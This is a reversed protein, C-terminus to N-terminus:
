LGSFKDNFVGLGVLYINKNTIVSHENHGLENYGLKVTNEAIQIQERATLKGAHCTGSIKSFLM